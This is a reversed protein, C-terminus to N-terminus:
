QDERKRHENIQWDARIVGESLPLMQARELARRILVVAQAQPDRREAKALFQLAVHEDYELTITM